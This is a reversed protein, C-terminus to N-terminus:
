GAELPVDFFDIGTLRGDTFCYRALTLRGGRGPDPPASSYPYLCRTGVPKPPAHGAAAARAMWSDVGVISVVQPRTMGLRVSGADDRAAPAPPMHAYRLGIVLLGAVAVLGLAGTVARPWRPPAPEGVGARDAPHPAAPAALPLGARVAFSGDGAPGASAEGGLLAVRERIGALGRGTGAPASVGAPRTNRVEVHVRHEDVEVSVTVAAGPAYRHANALAERVIRHLARRVMPSAGTLDPGTWELRARAGASASAGTLAGIDARLGTADTPSGDLPGLVGLVERLEELAERATGRLRVANERLEPARKGLALELGGAYLSILSLRHGILDHMEAAIRAREALRSADEAAEARERLAVVLRDQQGTVTGVLGPGAVAVVSLVAGLRADPYATLVPLVVAVGLVLLRRPVQGAVRGGVRRGAGYAAVAVPLGVAPLAGLVAALGWLGAVPWWRRLVFCGLGAVGLGLASWRDKPVDAFYAVIRDTALTVAVAPVMEAASRLLARRRPSM